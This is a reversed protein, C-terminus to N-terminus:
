SFKIHLLVYKEEQTWDEFMKSTRVGAYETILVFVNRGGYECHYLGYCTTTHHSIIDSYESNDKAQQLLGYTRYEKKLESYTHYFHSPLVFDQHVVKVAFTPSNSHIADKLRAKFVIGTSGRGLIEYVELTNEVSTSLPPFPFKKERTFVM